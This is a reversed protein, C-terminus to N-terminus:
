GRGNEKFRLRKDSFDSRWGSRVLLLDKSVKKEYNMLRGKRQTVKQSM